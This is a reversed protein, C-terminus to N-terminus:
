VSEGPKRKPVLVLDFGALQAIDIANQLSPLRQGTLTNPNALLCEATHQACLEHKACARVFTYRSVGHRELRQVVAAKWDGPKSLTIM